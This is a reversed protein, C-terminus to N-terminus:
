NSKQLIWTQNEARMDPLELALPDSVTKQERHVGLHVSPMYIHM